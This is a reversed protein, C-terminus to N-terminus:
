VALDETTPLSTNKASRLNTLFIEKLYEPAPTVVIPRYPNETQNQIELVLALDPNAENANGDSGSPPTDM